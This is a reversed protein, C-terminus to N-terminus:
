RREGEIQNQFMAAPRLVDILWATHMGFHVGLAALSVSAAAAHARRWVLSFGPKIGLAPLVAKSIFLGSLMSVVLASFLISDIIINLRSEATSRKLFGEMTDHIWDWHLASHLSIAAMFALSLWEHFAIGTTLPVMVLISGAGIAMDFLLDARNQKKGSM